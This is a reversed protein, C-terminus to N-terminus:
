TRFTFLATSGHFWRFAPSKSMGNEEYKNYQPMWFSLLVQFDLTKCCIILYGMQLFDMSETSGPCQGHVRTSMWWPSLLCDPCHGHISQVFDLSDMSLTWHSWGSQVIDMSETLPCDPCQRHVGQVCFGPLGPPSSVIWPCLGSLGHFSQVNDM